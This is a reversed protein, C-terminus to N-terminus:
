QAPVDKRSSFVGKKYLLFNGGLGILLMIPLVASQITMVTGAGLILVLALVIVGPFVALKPARILCPVAYAGTMAFLMNDFGPKFVPKSLIPTLFGLGVMAIAIIVITVLAFVCVTITAIIDHKKSNPEANYKEMGATIPGFCGNVRGCIMGIYTAGAGMIPAYSFPELAGLIIFPLVGTLGLLLKPFEVHAGTALMVITPVSFMACLCIATSIRGLRHISREYPDLTQSASNHTQKAM